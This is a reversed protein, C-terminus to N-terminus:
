TMEYLMFRENRFLATEWGKVLGEYVHQFTSGPSQGELQNFSTAFLQGDKGAVSHSPIDIIYIGLNGKNESELGIVSFGLSSGKPKYLRIYKLEAEKASATAEVIQKLHDEIIM